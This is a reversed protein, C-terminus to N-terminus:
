AVRLALLLLVSWLCSVYSSADFILRFVCGSERGLERGEEDEEEELEIQSRLPWGASRLSFSASCYSNCPQHRDMACM